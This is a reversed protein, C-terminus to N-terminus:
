ICWLLSGMQVSSIWIWGSSWIQKHQKGRVCAFVCAFACASGGAHWRCSCSHSEDHKLFCRRPQCFLLSMFVPIHARAITTCTHVRSSTKNKKNFLCLIPSGVDVATTGTEKWRQTSDLLLDSHCRCSISFLSVFVTLRLSLTPSIVMYPNRYWLECWKCWFQGQFSGKLPQDNLYRWIYSQTAAKCCLLFVQWMLHLLAMTEWGKWSSVWSIVLFIRAPQLRLINRLQSFLPM